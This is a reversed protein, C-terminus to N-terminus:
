EAHPRYQALQRDAWSNGDWHETLTQYATDRYGNGVAWCDSTTVCTVSQLLNFGTPAAPSAVIAWASGNWHEIVNDGVARCDSGTVCFVGSLTSPHTGDSTPVTVNAWSSGDWHEAVAKNDYPSDSSTYYGVASCDTGSVCSVSNLFNGLSSAFNPSSVVEWHASAASGSIATSAVPNTDDYVSIATAAFTGSSPLPSAVSQASAKTELSTMGSPPTAALSLMALLTGVSCLAFALLLRPNFIGSQSSSRKRM